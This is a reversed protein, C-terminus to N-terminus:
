TPQRQRNRCRCTTAESFMQGPYGCLTSASRDAEARGARGQGAGHNSLRAPPGASRAASSWFRPPIANRCASYTIPFPVGVVGAARQCIRLGGSDNTEAAGGRFHRLSRRGRARFGAREAPGPVPPRNGASSNTASASDCEGNLPRAPAALLGWSLARVFRGKGAPRRRRAGRRAGGRLRAAAPASGSVRRVAAGAAAIGMDSGLSVTRGRDTSRWRRGPVHPRLAGRSDWPHCNRSVDKRYGVRRPVGGRARGTRRGRVGRRRPSPRCGEM